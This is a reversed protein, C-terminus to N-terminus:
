VTEEFDRLLHFEKVYKDVDDDFMTWYDEDIIWSNLYDYLYPKAAEWAEDVNTAKDLHTCVDIVSDYERDEFIYDCTKLVSLDDLWVIRTMYGKEDIDGLCIDMKEYFRKQINDMIDEILNDIEDM